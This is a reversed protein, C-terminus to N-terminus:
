SLWDQLAAHASGGDAQGVIELGANGLRRLLRARGRVIEDELRDRFFGIQCRLTGVEVGQRILAVGLKEIGSHANGPLFRASVELTPESSFRRPSRHGALQIASTVRTLSAGPTIPSRSQM